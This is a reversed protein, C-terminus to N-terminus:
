RATVLLGEEQQESSGECGGHGQPGSEQEGRRRGRSDAVIDISGSRDASASGSGGSHFRQDRDSDRDRDSGSDRSSGRDSGSDRDSGRDRDSGCEFERDCGSGGGSDFAHDLQERNTGHGSTVPTLSGAPALSSPTSGTQAASSGTATRGTVPQNQDKNQALNLLEGLIASQTTPLQPARAPQRPRARDVWYGRDHDVRDHIWYATTTAASGTTTAGTGATADHDDRDLGHGDRDFGHDLKDGGLYFGSPHHDRASSSAPPTYTVVPQTFAIGITQGGVSTTKTISGGSTTNAVPGPSFLTYLPFTTGPTANRDVRFQAPSVNRYKALSKWSARASKPVFAYSPLLHQLATINRQALPAVLFGNASARQRDIIVYQDPLPLLTHALMKLGNLTIGGKLQGNALYDFYNFRRQLAGPQDPNENFLTNNLGPEVLASTSTGGLLRAMAGAEALGKQAATDTFNQIEQATILGDNNTDILPFDHHNLLYNIAITGEISAIANGISVRAYSPPHTGGALRKSTRLCILAPTSLSDLDNVDAAPVATYALIGNIGDPNNYASLDKIAHKGFNLSNVGVPGTLYASSTVGNAHSLGIWYDLASAVMSYAGTVVAASM